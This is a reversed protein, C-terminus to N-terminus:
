IIFFNPLNKEGGGAGRGEGGEGGKGKYVGRAENPLTHSAKLLSGNQVNVFALKSTQATTFIPCLGAVHHSLSVSVPSSHLIYKTNFKPM